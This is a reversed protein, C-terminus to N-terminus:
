MVPSEWGEKEEEEEEQIWTIEVLDLNPIILETQSEQKIEEVETKVM